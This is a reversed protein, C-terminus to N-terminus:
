AYYWCEFYALFSRRILLEGTSGTVMVRAGVIADDRNVLPTTAPTGRVARDASTSANPTAM